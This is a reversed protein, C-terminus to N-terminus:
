IRKLVIKESEKEIVQTFFQKFFTYNEPLVLSTNINLEVNVQIFRGNQNVLYKFGGTSNSFDLVENKPLTEVEYNEPIMVSIMYKDSVPYRLDIPLQRKEEKFPNDETSLFLLPSFYLKDGIEEVANEMKYSYSIKVPESLDGVGNVNLESVILDGKDKELMKVYEEDSLDAYNDRYRKAIYNFKQSRVKGEASLDSNIKLHLGTIEKSVKTPILDVWISSGSERIVRGQWNLDRVPLTNFTANESTADLLALIDKDEVFCIVYNFGDKTPFLPIGNSKTSILVPNASIGAFRLMSVLMLNIDAVNGVGEKYAKRVGAEASYGYYGNWKVKSKVYNYIARAKQANTTLNGILANIDDEYYNSKGLQLGFDDSDYITKTVDDWSGLLNQYPKNPYNLAVLELKLKAIYNGLNDVFSEEKLAPIETEDIKIVNENISFRNTSSNYYSAVGSSNQSVTSNTVSESKSSKSETIKPLFSSQPNLVKNYLFYEPTKVLIELTNIPITYQLELDDIALFPSSIEYSFEIVCGVKINPMTFSKIKWYKNLEEEFVGDKKLKDTEINEDILNYTYAKLKYINESTSNQKNYLRIKKTAWAFGEKDYIKIRESVSRVQIFGEGKLYDFRISEKKFLVAAHASSDKPHSKEALETKSVKGFKFNQAQLNCTVLLLIVAIYIRM